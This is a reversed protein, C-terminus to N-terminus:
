DGALTWAVGLERGLSEAIDHIQIDDCRAARVFAHSARAREGARTLLLGHLFHYDVSPREKALVEEARRVADRPSSVAGHAYLWFERSLGRRWAAPADASEWVELFRAFEGHAFARELEGEWTRRAVAGGRAPAQKRAAAGGGEGAGSGRDGGAPEETGGAEPSAGARAEPSFLRHHFHDAGPTVTAAHLAELIALLRGLVEATWLSARPLASRSWEGRRAAMLGRLAAATPNEGELMELDAELAADDGLDFHIFARHVVAGAPPAAGDIAADLLALGDASDGREHLARAYPYLAAPLLPRAELLRGLLSLATDLEGRRWALDGRELDREFRLGM